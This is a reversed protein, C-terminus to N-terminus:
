PVSNPAGTSWSISDNYDFGVAGPLPYWAIKDYRHIKEEVLHQEYAHVHLAVLLM